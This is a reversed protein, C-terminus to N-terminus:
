VVVYGEMPPPSAPDEPVRCIALEEVTMYGQSILNAPARTHGGICALGAGGHFLLSLTVVGGGTLEVVGDQERLDIQRNGIKKEAMPFSTPLIHSSTPKVPVVVMNIAGYHLLQPPL